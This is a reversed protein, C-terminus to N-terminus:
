RGFLDFGRRVDAHRPARLVDLADHPAIRRRPLAAEHDDEVQLPQQGALVGGGQALGGLRGRRSRPAAWFPGDSSRPAFAGCGSFGTDVCAARWAGWASCSLERFKWRSDVNM